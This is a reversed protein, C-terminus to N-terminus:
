STILGTQLFVCQQLNLSTSHSCHIAYHESQQQTFTLCFLVICHKGNQTSVPCYLLYCKLSSSFSSVLVQSSLLALKKHRINCTRIALYLIVCSFLAIYGAILGVALLYNPSNINIDVETFTGKHVLITNYHFPYLLIIPLM